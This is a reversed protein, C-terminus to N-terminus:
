EESIYAAEIEILMDTECVDGRLFLVPPLQRGYRRILLEETVSLMFLDCLYVKLYSLDTLSNIPSKQTEVGRKILAEINNLAEDLQLQVQGIHRKKYGVISSTASIYLHTTDKWKKVLARSFTPRVPGYLRPYLFDSSQRPNKLEM